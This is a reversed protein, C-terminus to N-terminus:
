REILLRRSRITGENEIQIIYIGNSINESLSIQHSNIGISHNLMGSLIIRGTLDIMRFNSIGETTARWRISVQSKAPNPYVLLSGEMPLEEKWTGNSMIMNIKDYNANFAEGPLQDDAFRFSKETSRNRSRFIMELMTTGHRFTLGTAQPDNWSFLLRGNGTLSEGVGIQLPNDQIKEFVFGATDWALTGQFGMINEIHETKLTVSFINGPLERLDAYFALTDRGQTRDLRPDRDYNVDGLKVGRFTHTIPGYPNNFSKTRILPFPMNVNPFTQEADVFAWTQNGPLSSDMRLLLRRIHMMDATTVSSSANVDAAIVKFPNDLRQRFLIHSQIIALDLTSLGNLKQTENNKFPTLTYMGKTASLTYRGMSDTFTQRTDPGTLTMMVNRIGEDLPTIVKGNLIMNCTTVKVAGNKALLKRPSPRDDYGSFISTDENLRVILNGIMSTTPILRISFIVTSDPLSRWQGTNSQWGFGVKGATASLTNFDAVTMGLSSQPQLIVSEFRLRATDWSVEGRIRSIRRFSSVTIPVSVPVVCSGIVTDIHFGLTDPFQVFISDTLRCGDPTRFHLRYGGTYKVFLTGTTDGTSWLHDFSRLTTDARLPISDSRSYIRDPLANFNPPSFLNVTVATRALSATTVSDQVYYTTTALLIPTTFLSDGGLWIGGVPATYWGIKGVGSAKLTVSNGICISTDRSTPPFPVSNPTGAVFLLTTDNYNNCDSIGNPATTWARITWEPGAIFDFSGIKVETNKRTPLTGTWDYPPQLAGNISWQIRVRSITALGQNQLVVKMDQKGPGIPLSPSSFENIGADNNCPTFEKVGIDPSIPHRQASDIDRTVPNITIGADNILIHNPRYDNIRFFPNIFLSNSEGNILNGWLSLNNYIQDNLSGINNLPAYYCNYDSTLNTTGGILKMCYGGSLNRLVNNFVSINSGGQIALASSNNNTGTINITNFLIRTNTCNTLLIGNTSLQKQNFVWNNAITSHKIDRCEIASGNIFNIRNSELHYRANGSLILGYNVENIINGTLSATDRITIEIGRICSDLRNSNIFVKGAQGMIFRGDRHSRGFHNNHIYVTGSTNLYIGHDAQGRFASHLIFISDSNESITVTNGGEQRETFQMREFRVDKSNGRISVIPHGPDWGIQAINLHKFRIHRTNRLLMTYKMPDSFARDSTVSVKSSDKSESEFTVTNQYSAGMISDIIFKEKYEGDRVKFLVPCSIGADRLFNSADSFTKFDPNLGGITYSGCLRAYLKISTITDNARLCDGPISISDLWVKIEYEVLSKFDFSGIQITDVVGMALSGQWLTDKVASGNVSWYIRAKDMTSQGNNQMLVRIKQIGVDLPSNPESISLLGADTQCPDFEAAGIDPRPTSRIKGNIDRDVTTGSEGQANLLVQAPNL